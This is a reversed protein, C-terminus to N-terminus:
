PIVQLQAFVLHVQEHTVNCRVEPLPIDITDFLFGVVFIDGNTNSAAVAKNAAVPEACFLGLM